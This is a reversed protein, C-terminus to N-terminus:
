ESEAAEEEAAEEEEVATAAPVVVNIVLLEADDVLTIGAPLEVAGAHIQTGAELGEVNIVIEDPIDMVDAAVKITEADQMLLGGAAVEGTTVVPVDVEVTEGRHIAVLDAHDIELTLVNQDVGKIMALQKEGDIDLEVVTNLGHNRVIKTFAIRDVTIHLNDFGKAYVVAPVLGAVRARRAFGKGFQTRPQAALAIAKNSM